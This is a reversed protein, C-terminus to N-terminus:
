NITELYTHGRYIFKRCNKDIDKMFSLPLEASTLGTKELCRAYIGEYDLGYSLDNWVEHLLQDIDKEELEKLLLITRLRQIGEQQIDYDYEFLMKIEDVTPLYYDFRQQSKRYEKLMSSNLLSRWYVQNEKIAIQVEGVPLQQLLAQIDVDEVFCDKLLLVKYFQEISCEGWYHTLVQQCQLLWVKQLRQQQFTSDNQCRLFIDKVEEVVFLEEGEFAILDYDLLRELRLNDEERVEEDRFVQMFVRYTEDDLISLRNEIHHYLLITEVMKEYLDEMAIKNAAQIGLDRAYFYLSQKDYQRLVDKLKM